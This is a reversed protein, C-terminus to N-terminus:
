GARNIDGGRAMRVRQQYAVAVHPLDLQVTRHEAHKGIGLEGLAGEREHGLRREDHVGIPEFLGEARHGRVESVILVGFPVCGVAGAPRQQAEAIRRSPNLILKILERRFEIVLVGREM